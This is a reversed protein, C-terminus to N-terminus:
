ERNLSRNQRRDTVDVNRFVGYFNVELNLTNKFFVPHLNIDDQILESENLM